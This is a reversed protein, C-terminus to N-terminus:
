KEFFKRIIKINKKVDLLSYKSYTPLLIINSVILKIKKIEPNFYKAFFKIDNCNRYFYHAIDRNNLFMFKILEDRKNYLIPFSIYPDSTNEDYKPIQLENIDKLGNYYTQFFIKRILYNKNVNPLQKKICRAQYNSINLKYNEPLKELYFPNPDNKILSKIININKLYGFKIIWFTLFKFVPNYTSLDIIFGYFFKKILHKIKPNKFSKLEILIKKYIEDDNTVVAGGNLTSVFKFMSFSYVGIDAITGLKKQKISAGFGIAVDEILKIKNNKCFDHINYIEDACKHMHTLIIGATKVNYYKKIEELKPSFNELNVDIFVPKGGACIVMNVVDFITFPPLIIENKDHDIISKVALYIGLRGRFLLSVNKINLYKKLDNELNSIDNGKLFKGVFIDKIFNTYHLKYIKQRPLSPMM